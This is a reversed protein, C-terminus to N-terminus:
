DKKNTGKDEINGIFVFVLVFIVIFLFITWVIYSKLSWKHGIGACKFNYSKEKGISTTLLRTSVTFTNKEETINISTIFLNGNMISMKTPWYFNTNNGIQKIGNYNFISLDNDVQGVIYIVEKEIGSLYLNGLNGAIMTSSADNKYAEKVENEAFSESDTKKRLIETSVSFIMRSKLPCFFLVESDCSLAISILKKASDLFFNDIFENSLEYRDDYKYKNENLIIKKASDKRKSLDKILFGAEYDINKNKKSYTQNSLNKNYSIYTYNNIEDLVFDCITLNKDQSIIIKDLVKGKFNIIYLNIEGNEKKNSEDLIYINDKSDFEFAIVSILEKSQNNYDNENPWPVFERISENLKTFKYTFSENSSNSIPIIRFIEGKSNKKISGYLFKESIKSENNTKNYTNNYTDYLDINPIYYCIFEFFLSILLIYRSIGLNNM